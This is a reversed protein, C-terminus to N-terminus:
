QGLIKRVQAADKANPSVKLYLRYYRRASDYDGQKAYCIGLAKYCKGFNPESRVCKRFHGIAEKFQGRQFLQYGTRYAEPAKGTTPKKAVAPEKAVAPKKAVTPEQAVVSVETAASEKVVQKNRERGTVRGQSVQKPKHPAEAENTGQISSTTPVKTRRSGGAIGKVKQSVENAKEAEAIKAKIEFIINKDNELREFKPLLERALVLSGQAISSDIEARITEHLVANIEERLGWVDKAYVSKESIGVM